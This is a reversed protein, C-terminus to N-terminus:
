DATNADNIMKKLRPNKKFDHARNLVELAEATKGEKLLEKGTQYDRSWNEDTYEDKVEPIVSPAPAPAPSPAPPVPKAETVLGKRQYFEAMSIQRFDVVKGVGYVKPRSVISDWTKQNVLMAREEKKNRIGDVITYSTKLVPVGFPNFFKKM